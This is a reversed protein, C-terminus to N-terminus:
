KTDMTKLVVEIVHRCKRQFQETDEQDVSGGAADSIRRGKIILEDVERKSSEDLPLKSIGILQGLTEGLEMGRQAGKCYGEDFGKQASV